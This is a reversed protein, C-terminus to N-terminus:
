TTPCPTHVGWCWRMPVPPAISLLLAADLGLVVLAAALSASGFVTAAAALAGSVGLGHVLGAGAAVAVLQGREDTPRLAERALVAAAM